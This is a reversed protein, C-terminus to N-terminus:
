MSQNERKAKERMSRYWEKHHHIMAEEAPTLEDSLIGMREARRYWEHVGDLRDEAEARHLAALEHDGHKEAKEAYECQMQADKLGVMITKTVGYAVDRHM